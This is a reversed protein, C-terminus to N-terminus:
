ARTSDTPPAPPGADATRDIPGDGVAGHSDSVADLVLADARPDVAGDVPGDESAVNSDSADVFDLNTPDLSSAELADYTTCGVWTVLLTGLLLGLGAARHARSRSRDFPISSM